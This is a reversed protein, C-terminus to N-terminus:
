RQVASLYADLLTDDPVVDDDLLVVWDGHSSALGTNRSLSAGMNTVNQTVRVLHNPTWDELQRLQTMSASPNDVVVLM